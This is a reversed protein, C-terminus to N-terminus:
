LLSVMLALLCVSLPLGLLTSLAKSGARYSHYTRGNEKQFRWVSSAVSITSCSRFIKKALLFSSHAHLRHSTITTTTTTSHAVERVTPHAYERIPDESHSGRASDVLRTKLVPHDYYIYICIVAFAICVDAEIPTNYSAPSPAGTEGTAGEGEPAISLPQEGTTSARRPPLLM